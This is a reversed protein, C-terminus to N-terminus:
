RRQVQHLSLAFLCDSFTSFPTFRLVRQPLVVVYWTSNCGELGPLVEDLLHRDNNTMGMPATVSSKDRAWLPKRDQPFPELVETQLLRRGSGDDDTEWGAQVKNLLNEWAAANNPQFLDEQYTLVLSVQTQRDAILTGRSNWGANDAAVSFDGVTLGLISLFLTVIWAGAFHKWPNRAMSAAWKAAWTSPEPFTAANSDQENTDKKPDGEDSESSNRYDDCPFEELAGNVEPKSREKATSSSSEALVTSAHEDSSRGSKVHDDGLDQWIDNDEFHLAELEGDGNMEPESSEREDTTM